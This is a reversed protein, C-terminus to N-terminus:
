AYVDSGFEGSGEGGGGVGGEEGREGWWGWGGQMCVSIFLVRCPVVRKIVQYLSRSHRGDVEIAGLYGESLDLRCCAPEEGEFIEEFDERFIVHVQQARVVVLHESFLERVRGSSKPVFLDVPLPVISPAFPLSPPLFHSLSLSLFSVSSM